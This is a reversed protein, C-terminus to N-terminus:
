EEKPDADAGPPHAAARGGGPGPEGAHAQADDDDNREAPGDVVEISALELERGGVLTPSLEGCTPCRMHQPSAVPQERRCRDCWVVAPCHEIALEAGRLSSRGVAIAFASRLAEPVVGSLDGVRVTVRKVPRCPAPEGGRSQAVAEAALEDEVLEVLSQAISLEHM